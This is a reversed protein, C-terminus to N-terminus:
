CLWFRAACTYGLSVYTFHTLCNRCLCLIKLAVTQLYDATIWCHTEAVIVVNVGEVPSVKVVARLIALTVLHVGRKDLWVNDLLLITM